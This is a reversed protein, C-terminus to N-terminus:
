ADTLLLTETSKKKLGTFSALLMSRIRIMKDTLILKNYRPERLVLRAALSELTTPVQDQTLEKIAMSFREEELFNTVM